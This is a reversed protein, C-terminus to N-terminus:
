LAIVLFELALLSIIVISLRRFKGVELKNQLLKFIIIHVDHENNRRDVSFPHFIGSKRLLHKISEILFNNILQLRLTEVVDAVHCVDPFFRVEHLIRNVKSPASPKRGIDIDTREHGGFKLRRM